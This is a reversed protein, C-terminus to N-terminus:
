KKSGIQQAIEAKIKECKIQLNRLSNSFVVDGAEKLKRNIRDLTKNIEKLKRKRAM